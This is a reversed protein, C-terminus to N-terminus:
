DEIVEIDDDYDEFNDEFDDDKKGGSTLRGAVFAGAVAGAAGLGIAVKKVIGKHNNYFTKIKGPKKEQNEQNENNNIKHNINM